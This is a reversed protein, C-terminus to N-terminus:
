RTPQAKVLDTHIIGGGSRILLPQDSMSCLGQLGIVPRHVKEEADAPHGWGIAQGKPKALIAELWTHRAM